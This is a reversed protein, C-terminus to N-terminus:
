SDLPPILTSMITWFVLALPMVSMENVTELVSRSAARVIQSLTLDSMPAASTVLSSLMPRTEITPAPMFDLGPTVASMNSVSESFPMLISIIEVLEM